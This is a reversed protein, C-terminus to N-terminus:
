HPRKQFEITHVTRPATYALWMQGNNAAENLRVSVSLDMKSFVFILYRLRNKRVRGEWKLFSLNIYFMLITGFRLTFTFYLTVILPLM